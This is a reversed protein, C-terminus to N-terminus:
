ACREQLDALVICYRRYAEYPSDYASFYAHVDGDAFYKTCMYYFHDSTQLRRWDTLLREDKKRWVAKELDYIKRLTDWQLDNSRWASLDRDEDAWSIPEDVNYVPLTKVWAAWDKKTRYKKPTLEDRPNVFNIHEDNCGLEVFKEFFPFIGTSAWQHEGFTEFDMFLNIIEEDRYDHLWRCYKDATLPWESWSKQSFRFAIDDSLPAHKLLMPLAPDCNARYVQTKPRGAMLRDVGEVLIGRFGLNAVQWGIYNNYIMETNRFVVPKVDFLERLLDKHMKVQRKFETESYLASLSHYYNEGVIEVQGRHQSLRYLLDLVDQGWAQCQELFVGSCSFAFKFDPYKEVLKLLLGLMPRYSKEAVKLFVEHNQDRCDDCFYRHREDGLDTVAFNTLRYPQHLLFYFCVKPM